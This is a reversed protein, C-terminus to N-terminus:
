SGTSPLGVTTLPPPVPGTVVSPVQPEEFPLVTHPLQGCPGHQEMYPHLYSQKKKELM